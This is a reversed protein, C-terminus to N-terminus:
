NVISNDVIYKELKELTKILDEEFLTDESMKLYWQKTEIIYKNIWKNSAFHAESLNHVRDALKVIKAIENQKIKNIYDEMQYNEEKTLLKVVDIIKVNSLELLEEYTTETDELLDHFLGVIQYDLDYGKNKLMDAVAFPHLYYPTGQIRKQKGHKRMVFEKIENLKRQLDQNLM